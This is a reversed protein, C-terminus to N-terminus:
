AAKEEKGSSGKLAKRVTFVVKRLEEPDGKGIVAKRAEAPSDSGGWLALNTAPIGNQCFCLIAGAAMAEAQSARRKSVCAGAEQFGRIVVDLFCWTEEKVEKKAAFVASKVKELDVGADM